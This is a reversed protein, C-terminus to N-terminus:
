KAENCLILLLINTYINRVTLSDDPSYLSAHVVDYMLHM